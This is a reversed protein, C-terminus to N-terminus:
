MAKYKTVFAKLFSRSFCKNRQLIRFVKRYKILNFPYNFTIPSKFYSYKLFLDCFKVM